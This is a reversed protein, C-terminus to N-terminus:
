AALSGSWVQDPRTTGAPRPLTSPHGAGEADADEAGGLDGGLGQEVGGPQV